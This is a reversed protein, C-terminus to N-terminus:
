GLNQRLEALRGPTGVDCWYGQHLLGQMAGEKISEDFVERLAFATKSSRCVLSESILGIGTYTLKEGTLRLTGSADLAFDGEPHHKPNNTMLLRGDFGRPLPALLPIFDVDIYTDASVVLFPSSGLLSLARLIGGGTELRDPEHSYQISLGFRTGDGLRPEFQEALHHTNIVVESIGAAKIKKLQHEILAMGGAEILPKPVQETLPRLRKGLGAALLM